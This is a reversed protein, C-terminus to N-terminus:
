KYGTNEYEIYDEAEHQPNIKYGNLVKELGDLYETIMFVEGGETYQIWRGSKRGSVYEGIRFLNGSNYWFIHEGVPLGNQYKGKFILQKDNYYSRWEGVKQGDIYSGKESFSGNIYFWEGEEYNDKYNGQIVVRGSDDFVKYLGDYLGELYNIEGYLSGNNYYEKWLGDQKGNNSYLGRSETLGNEYYYVWEGIKVGNKFEGESQKTGSPYYFSWYGHKLGNKKVIGKATLVGYKYICSSTVQGKDNYIRHIGHPKGGKTFSGSKTILGNSDFDKKLEVELLNSVDKKISDKSYENIKLLDGKKNYIREVGQKYGKSYNVEEIVKGDTFKLWRGTKRNFQDKRNIIFEKCKGHNYDWWVQELGTTDFRFASGHKLGNKFSFKEKIEGSNYFIRLEQITDSNFFEKKVIYSNKNYTIKWGHKVGNEYRLSVSLSGNTNYFNWISDLKNNVRNGKSKINGNQYYNIWFGEPKGNKLYGKSAIEGNPYTYKKFGDLSQSKLLLPFILFLILFFYYSYKIFFKM